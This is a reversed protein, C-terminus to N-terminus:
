LKLKRSKKEQAADVAGLPEGALGAGVRVLQVAGAPVVGGSMMAIGDLLKVMGREVREEDVEDTSGSYKAIDSIGGVANRVARIPMAEIEGYQFAKNIRTAVEAATIPEGKKRSKSPGGLFVHTLPYVLRGGGPVFGEMLEQAAGSVMDHAAREKEDDDDPWEGRTALRFALRIASMAVASLAVGALSMNSLRIAQSREEATGNKRAWRRQMMTSHILNRVVSPQGMFPFLIGAGNEKLNAYLTTEYLPDSPNQTAM